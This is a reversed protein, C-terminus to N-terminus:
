IGTRSYIMYKSNIYGEQNNYKVKYWEVNSTSKYGAQILEVEDGKKLVFLKSDIISPGSRVNVDSKLIYFSKQNQANADPNPIVNTEPPSYTGNHQTPSNVFGMITILIVVFSIPYLLLTKSLTFKKVAVLVGIISGFFLGWIGWLVTPNLPTIGFM